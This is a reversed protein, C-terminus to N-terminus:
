AADVSWTYVAAGGPRLQTRRVAISVLIVWFAAKDRGTPVMQGLGRNMRPVDDLSALSARDSNDVEGQDHGGISNDSADSYREDRSGPLLPELSPRAQEVPMLTSPQNLISIPPSDSTRICDTQYILIDTSPVHFSLAIARTHALQSQRRPFAEDQGCPGNLALCFDDNPSGTASELKGRPKDDLCRGIQYLGLDRLLGHCLFSCSEHTHIM